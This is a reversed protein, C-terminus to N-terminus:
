RNQGEMALTLEDLAVRMESMGAKMSELDGARGMQEVNSALVSLADGGLNAAAGRITHAQRTAGALDGADLYGQLAGFQIPMDRGFAQIITRVLEEDGMLREFLAVRDFTVAPTKMEVEKERLGPVPKEQSGKADEDPLWKDLVKALASAAVPKSIYDNMGAALCRDKDGQMANATMAIVPIRSVSEDTGKRIEITAELGDMVPMQVDM